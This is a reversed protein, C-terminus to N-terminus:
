LDSESEVLALDQADRSILSSFSLSVPCIFFSRSSIRKSLALIFDRGFRWSLVPRLGVDPNHWASAIIHHGKYDVDM